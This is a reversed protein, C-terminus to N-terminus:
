IGSLTICVSLFKNHSDVFDSSILIFFIANTKIKITQKDNEDLMKAWSITRNEVDRM